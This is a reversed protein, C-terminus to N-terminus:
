LHESQWTRPALCQLLPKYIKNNNVYKYKKVRGFTSAKRTIVAVAPPEVVVVMSQAKHQRGERGGERRLRVREGM